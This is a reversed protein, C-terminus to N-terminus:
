NAKRQKFMWVGGVLCLVGGAFPMASGIMNAASTASGAGSQGMDPSAEGPHQKEHIRTVETDSPFKGTWRYSVIKNFRSDRRMSAKDATM